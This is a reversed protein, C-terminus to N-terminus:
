CSPFVGHGVPPKFLTRRSAPAPAAETKKRQFPLPLSSSGLILQAVASPFSCRMGVRERRVKAPSKLATTVTMAPVETEDEDDAAEDM